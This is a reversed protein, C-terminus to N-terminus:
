PGNSAVKSVKSVQPVRSISKVMSSQSEVVVMWIFLITGSLRATAVNLFRAGFGSGESGNM